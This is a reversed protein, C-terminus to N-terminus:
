RAGGALARAIRADNASLARNLRAAKSQALRYSGALIRRVSGPQAVAWAGSATRVPAYMRADPPEEDLPAVARVAAVEGGEIFLLEVDDAITASVFRGAPPIRRALDAVEGGPAGPNVILTWEVWGEPQPFSSLHAGRSPPDPIIPM